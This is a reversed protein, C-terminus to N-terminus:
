SPQYRLDLTYLFDPHPNYEKLVYEKSPTHTMKEFRSLRRGQAENENIPCHEYNMGGPHFVHYKCGGISRNYRTDYVDFTLPTNVPLNPHLASHLQWAKYRVGCIYEDHHQFQKRLPLKIGNCTIVHHSKIQGTVKCELRDLSSDVARSTGQSSGEEGMVPWPELAARLEIEINDVVVSGYKQFRFETFPVFWSYEFPIGGENLFAIVEKFDEIIFTPLMYKDHLRTGFRKFKFDYPKKWFLIVLSKILLFQLSCMQYHPPMEFARLELLGLRGAEGDPSYLKDICFESRHTNGTIDVLLNRLLRDLRWFSTADEEKIQQFAIELEYLSDHRAEDVRPSQSTPGIFLSSFLYSLSPHNQWFLIMSKLLDPRRLFPSDLPSKGGLVIHNGGGTGVKRGDLLFKEAELELKRAEDYIIEINQNFDQWSSPPHINVELVGPDPTIKFSDIRLDAPPPYGELQITYQHKTAAKDIAAVLELYQEILPLPPLFVYIQNERVEISIATRLSNSPYANSKQSDSRRKEITEVLSAHTPLVDQMETFSRQSAKDDNVEDHSEIQNLPLRLGVPSNGPNLILKKDDLSWACTMWVKNKFSYQIPLIYGSPKQKAESLVENTKELEIKEFDSLSASSDESAQLEKKWLYYTVDEFAPIIRNEDISLQTCIEKLLEFDHGPKAKFSDHTHANNFTQHSGIMQHDKRWYTGYAWRPLVEGPYWKGQTHQIIGGKAFIESLSSMLHQAVDEKHKGTAATQWEDLRLNKNSLFTPEGGMTLRIDDNVSMKDVQLGVQNIKDWEHTTYPKTSRPLEKLREITMSFEFDCHCPDVQGSIPAASSPNPTCCLPIHGEGTLLGSTPDLGIWGAGPIFVEVWAHLDTFDKEPGSPGHYSIEDAKLQILYGSCFRSALGYYRFIQCALWALDRCSGSELKLTEDRSQIGPELRIKYNIAKYIANNISVLFDVLEIKGKPLNSTAFNLFRDTCLRLEFYPNLESKLEQSYEFPYQKASDELFFDFPNFINIQTILDVSVQFMNTKEPFCVRAQYNNFPDQQWNIFHKAPLISLSCSLVKAKAHPAPKLRIIQPGLNVFQDYTYKTIHSLAVDISM